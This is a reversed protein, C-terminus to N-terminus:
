LGWDSANFSNKPANPVNVFFTLGTLAELESISYMDSSSPKHGASSRHPLIFAVCELEDSTCKDVRKGTNGKKTRLLAKYWATPVQFGSGSKKNVTNGYKDKFTEFICGVVQYLTDSCFLNNDVYDELNNWSGGGTNFGSSMQAGINSYYFVQRNTPKSVTREYSSIMHGRTYGSFSSSQSCSIGPDPKYSDNRGSSGMYCKHLPAAVWVPHKYSKSYCCSFNRIKAADDRMTWSYYYDPNDDDVGNRNDDKQAPLEFWGRCARGDSQEGQELTTASAKSPSSDLYLKGDGLAIVSVSYTTGPKLGTATYSTSTVTHSSGNDFSVSYGSCNKVSTWSFTLSTQTRETCEVANMNLQRPEDPVPSGQIRYLQVPTQSSTYTTFRPSQSNYQLKGYSDKSSKIEIQGNSGNVIKWLTEGSNWALKKVTTCGLKQGNDNIFEWGSTSSGSLTMQLASEPLSVITSKDTSFVASANGLVNNSIDTAVMGKSNCAIVVKDGACLQSVDDALTFNKILPIKVAGSLPLGFTSVCDTVWTMNLGSFSISYVNRDTTVEFDLKSIRAPLSTFWTDFVGDNGVINDKSYLLTIKKSVGDGSANVSVKMGDYLVDMAGSIVNDALIEVKCLKEGAELNKLTMRSVAAARAFCFTLEERLSTELVTLPQAVLVESAPDFCDKRPYQVSPVVAEDSSDGASSYLAKYTATGPVTGPFSATLSLIGGSVSVANATGSVGNEYVRFRDKTDFEDWHTTTLNEGLSTRVETESCVFSLCHNTGDSNGDEMDAPLSHCGPLAVVALIVSLLASKNLVFTQM